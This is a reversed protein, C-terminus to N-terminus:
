KTERMLGCENFWKQKKESLERWSVESGRFCATGRVQSRFPHVRRPIKNRTGLKKDMQKEEHRACVLLEGGSAVFVM